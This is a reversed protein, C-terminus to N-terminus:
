ACVRGGDVEGQAIAWRVGDVLDHQIKAGWQRYGAKQFDVGRAGSGRYNVQVRADAFLTTRVGSALNERVLQGPGGDPSHVAVFESDDASFATPEFRKGLGADLASLPVLRPAAHVISCCAAFCSCLLVSRLRM